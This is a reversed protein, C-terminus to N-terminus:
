LRPRRGAALELYGVKMLFRVKKALRRAQAFFSSVELDAKDVTM